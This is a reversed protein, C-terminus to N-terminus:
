APRYISSIYVCERTYCETLESIIPNRGQIILLYYIFIHYQRAKFHIAAHYKSFYQYYLKEIENVVVETKSIFIILNYMYPFNRDM